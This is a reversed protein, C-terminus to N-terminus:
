KVVSSLLFFYQEEGNAYIMKYDGFSDGNLDNVETFGVMSPVFNPTKRIKYDSFLIAQITQTQGGTLANVIDFTIIGHNLMTSNRVVVNCGAGPYLACRSIGNLKLEQILEPGNIPAPSLIQQRTTTGEAYVVALVVENKAVPHPILSYGETVNTTVTSIMSPRLNWRDYFKYNVVVNNSADREFPPAGQDVQITLNGNDEIVLDPLFIAALEKQLVTLGKAALAPTAELLWGQSTLFMSNFDDSM